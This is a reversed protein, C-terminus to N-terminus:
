KSAPPSSAGEQRTGLGMAGRLARWNRSLKCSLDELKSKRPEPMAAQDPMLAEIEFAYVEAEVEGVDDFAERYSTRAIHPPMELAAAAERTALIYRDLSLANKALRHIVIVPLGSIEHTGRFAYHLVPGRHVITKLELQEINRCASCPCANSRALARRRAYFHHQMSLLTEALNAGALGGDPAVPGYFLIADGEIKGPTLAPSASEILSDLLDSIIAQAHDFAFRSLSVFRTYGSIDPMVLITDQERARSARADGGGGPVRGNPGALGLHGPPGLVDRPQLPIRRAFFFVLTLALAILPLLVAGVMLLSHLHLEDLIHTWHYALWNAM